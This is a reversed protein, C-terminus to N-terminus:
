ERVGYFEYTEDKMKAAKEVMDIFHEVTVDRGGLGM